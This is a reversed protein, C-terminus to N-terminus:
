TIYIFAPLDNKFAEHIKSSYRFVEQRVKFRTVQKSFNISKFFFNLYFMREKGWIEDEASGHNKCHTTQMGSSRRGSSLDCYIVRHGGRPCIGMQVQLLHIVQCSSLCFFDKNPDYM